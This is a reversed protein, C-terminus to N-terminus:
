PVHRQGAFAAAAQEYRGHHLAVRSDAVAAFVALDRSTRGAALEAARGRWEDVGRGDGRLGCVLVGAYAAPALWHSPPAGARLWAQWMASADALAAEFDGQLALAIVRRFLTMPQDAVLPDSTAPDAMSLAGPLDGAAVALTISRSDSIEFGARVDHRSLRGILQYREASLKRAQRYRGAAREAEATADLCGSILVPDGAHRAAALAATALRSDPTSKEARANWATAAALSCPANRMTSCITAGASSRGSRATGHIPARGGALLRLYDDLCALLGDLGLSASRAAALEIALPMGELRARLEDVAVAPGFATGVARARDTFLVAAESGAEGGDVDAVLSLPPVTM